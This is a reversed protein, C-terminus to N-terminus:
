LYRQMYSKVSEQEMTNPLCIHQLSCSECHKGVKVKPTYKNHYYGWMEEFLQKVTAKMETTIQITVRRKIEDYYFAGESIDYLFMEELCIAQAVLQVVDEDNKKPKGRKYEVPLITFKADEKPLYVGNEDKNFEVVDCIGNTKLTHSHIPLARVVIKNGRKERILPQDVREHILQGEVTKVNEQWQQEIHILAWQRRCFQFHQIGSLM